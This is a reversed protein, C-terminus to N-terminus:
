PPFSERAPPVGWRKLKRWLTNAGIGLARATHTRNGGFRELVQLVYRRELDAMPIVEDFVLGSMPAMGDRVEMPLDSRAIKTRDASLVVAREIANQLERVNGPWHYSTLADVADPALSRPELQYMQCAAAIFERALPLVDERRERLPPIDVSVVNLRYYLEKRFAGSGVMKQLDRNTAALV